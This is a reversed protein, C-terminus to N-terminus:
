KKSSKITKKIATKKIAKKRTEITRKSPTPAKAKPAKAKKKPEEDIITLSATTEMPVVAEMEKEVPKITKKVRTTIMRMLTASAGPKWQQTLVNNKGEEQKNVLSFSTPTKTGDGEFYLPFVQKGKEKFAQAAKASNPGGGIIIIADAEDAAAKAADDWSSCITSSISIKDNTPPTGTKRVYRVEGKGHKMIGKMIWHDATKPNDSGLVVKHGAKALHYGIDETAEQALVVNKLGDFSGRVAIIM